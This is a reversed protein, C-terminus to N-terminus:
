RRQQSILNTYDAALLTNRFQTAHGLAAGPNVLKPAAAKAADLKLLENNFQSLIPGLQKATLTQNGMVNQVIDLKSLENANARLSALFGDYTEQDMGPDREKAKPEEDDRERSRRRGRGRDRDAGDDSADELADLVKELKKGIAGALRRPCAEDAYDLASKAKKVAARTSGEDDRVEELADILDELKGALKRKCDSREEDNLEAADKAASLAKKVSAEAQAPAWLGVLLLTVPFLQSRILM